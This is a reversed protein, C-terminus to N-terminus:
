CGQSAPEIAAASAARRPPQPPPPDLVAAPVVLPPAPPPPPPPPAPPPAKMVAGGAGIGSIMYAPPVGTSGGLGAVPVTCRPVLERVRDVREAVPDHSRRPDRGDARLVAEDVAHVRPVDHEVLRRRRGEILGLELLHDGLVDVGARERGVVAVGDVAEEERRP